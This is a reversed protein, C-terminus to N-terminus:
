GIWDSEEHSPGALQESMAAREGFITALQSLQDESIGTITINRGTAHTVAHNGAAKGPTQGQVTEAPSFYAKQSKNGDAKQGYYQKTSNGQKIWGRGKGKFDRDAPYGHLKWCDSRKHGTKGCYDCLVRPGRGQRGDGAYYAASELQESRGGQTMSWRLEEDAVQAFARNLTPLPDMNLIQSRVTAFIESDLGMLFQHLKEVEKNRAM